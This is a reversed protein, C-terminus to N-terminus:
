HWPTGKKETTPNPRTGAAHTRRGSNLVRRGLRLRRRQGHCRRCVKARKRLERLGTGACKRCPGFPSVACLVAYGAAYLLLATSAILM